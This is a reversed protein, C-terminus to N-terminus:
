ASWILTFTQLLLQGYLICHTCCKSLRGVNQAIEAILCTIVHIFVNSLNLLFCYFWRRELFNWTIEKFSKCKTWHHELKKIGESFPTELGEFYVYCIVEKNSSFKKEELWIKLNPFLIFDSRTLDPSYPPHIRVKIWTIKGNHPSTLRFTIM